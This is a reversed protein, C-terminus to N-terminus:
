PDDTPEEEWGPDVDSEDTGSNLDSEQAAPDEYPEEWGPDMDSEEVESETDTEETGPDVDPEEDASGADPEESGSDVDSEQIGPETDTEETDSEVTGPDVDPEEDASGADPEESGLDEDSEEVGPDGPDPDDASPDDGPDEPWWSDDYPDTEGLGAEEEYGPDDSWDEEIPDEWWCDEDDTWPEGTMPDETPDEEFPGIEDSLTTGRLRVALPALRLDGTAEAFFRVVYDATPLAVSASRAQGTPTSMSFVATGAEDYIVMRVASAARATDSNASLVFHFLQDRLVHLIRDDQSTVEDLTMDVYDSLRSGVNGFDVTLSYDGTTGVGSVEVFYLNASGVQSVQVVCMGDQNRLVEAEVIDGHVDYITVSTELGSQNQALVTVTMVDATGKDAVASVLKYFDVDHEDSITANTEYHTLMEYGDTTKLATARRLTDNTHLDMQFAAYPDELVTDVADPDFDIELEYKGIGFVDATASSIEIFYKELKQVDSLHIALEAASPGESLVSDVVQGTGDYVTLRAALLSYDTTNLRVTIGNEPVAKPPVVIRYVDVDDLTTIDATVLMSRSSSPLAPLNYARNGPGEYADGTRVGYLEQLALIDVEPFETVTTGLHEYMISSPDDSHGLGFAHGAEHLAVSFLDPGESNGDIGFDQACNLVVDGAWTGVYENYPVATAFTQLPMPVAGVRIDGFRLDGQVSGATGLPQGSDPVAHLDINAHSAWTQFARLVEAQWADTQAQADLMAFLESEQKGIQTSDPAFSLSLHGPDPWPIGYTTPLNRDELQELRLRLKRATM